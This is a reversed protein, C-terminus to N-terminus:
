SEDEDDDAKAMVIMVPSSADIEPQDEERTESVEVEDISGTVTEDNSSDIQFKVKITVTDGSEKGALASALSPSSSFDLTIKNKTSDAM